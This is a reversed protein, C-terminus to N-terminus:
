ILLAEEELAVNSIVRKQGNFSSLLTRETQHKPRERERERERERVPRGEKNEAATAKAPSSSDL